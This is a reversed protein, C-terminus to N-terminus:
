PSRRTASYTLQYYNYLYNSGVTTLPYQYQYFQMLINVVYNFNYNTPDVTLNTTGTYDMARFTMSNTLWASTMNTLYQAVINTTISGNTVGARWLVCNNTDFWYYIFMTLNTSPIIQLTEGQQALGNTLAVFTTYDGHGIQIDKSSRIEDLMLNFNLRSQDNAGLASNVLEDQRLGFLNVSILGAILLAFIAVSCMLEVLTMGRTGRVGRLQKIIIKM